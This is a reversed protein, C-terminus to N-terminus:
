HWTANKSTVWVDQEKGMAGNKEKVDHLVVDTYLDMVEGFDANLVEFPSLGM